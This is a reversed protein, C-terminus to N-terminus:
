KKEDELELRMEKVQKESDQLAEQAKKLEEQSQGKYSLYERKILVLQSEAEDTQLAAKAIEARELQREKMMKEIEQEKEKLASKLREPATISSISRKSGKAAPSMKSSTNSVMSIDSLDSRQRCLKAPSNVVSSSSLKRMRNSPSKTVKILPAFLGHNAKCEFYRKEGVQGDNKGVPNDLEVGAWDGAAFDCAGMFRLVGTKTGAQSSVIVRDGLKLAGGGTNSALSLTSGAPSPTNSKNLKLTSSTPSMSARARSAATTKFAVSPTEPLVQSPTKVASKENRSTLRSTRSFIGHM